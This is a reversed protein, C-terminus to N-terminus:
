RGHFVSREQLDGRGSPQESRQVALRGQGSHSRWSRKQEMRHVFATHIFIERRFQFILDGPYIDPVARLYGHSGSDTFPGELTRSRVIGSGAKMLYEVQGDPSVVLKM